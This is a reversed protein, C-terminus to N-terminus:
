SFKFYCQCNIINSFTLNSDVFISQQHSAGVQLYTIKIGNPLRRFAVPVHKYVRTYRALVSDEPYGTKITIILRNVNPVDFVIPLLLLDFKRKDRFDLKLEFRAFSEQGSWRVVGSFFNEAM